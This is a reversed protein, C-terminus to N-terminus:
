KNDTAKWLRQHCTVQTVFIIKVLIDFFFSPFTVKRLQFNVKMTSNHLEQLRRYLLSYNLNFILIRSLFTQEFLEERFSQRCKVTQWLVQGHFVAGSDTHMHTHTHALAVKIAKQLYQCDCLVCLLATHIISGFAVSPAWDTGTM